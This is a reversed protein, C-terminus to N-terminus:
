GSHSQLALLEVETSGDKSNLGIFQWCLANENFTEQFFYEKDEHYKGTLRLGVRLTFNLLGILSEEKFLGSHLLQFLVPYKQFATECAAYAEERAKPLKTAYYASRKILREDTLSPLSQSANFPKLRVWGDETKEEIPICHLEKANIATPSLKSKNPTFPYLTDETVVNALITNNFLLDFSLKRYHTAKVEIVLEHLNGTVQRPEKGLDSEFLYGESIISAVLKDLKRIYVTFGVESAIERLNSRYTAFSDVAACLAKEVSEPDPSGSWVCRDVVTPNYNFEIGLSTKLQKNM